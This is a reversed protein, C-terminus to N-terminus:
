APMEADLPGSREDGNYDRFCEQQVHVRDVDAIGGGYIWYGCLGVM